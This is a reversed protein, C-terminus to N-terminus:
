QVVDRIANTLLFGQLPDVVIGQYHLATGALAPVNPIPWSLALPSTGVYQVALTTFTAPDLRLSAFIGVPVVGTGFAGFAGVVSTANPRAHFEVSYSAGRAPASPAHVQRLFNPLGPLDIDGDFDFDAAAVGANYGWPLTTPGAQAVFTGNGQNRWIATPTVLDVWADGDVDLSAIGQGPQTPFATSTVDVFTGNGLNRLLWTASYSSEFLDPDGDLDVDAFWQAYTSGSGVVPLPVTSPSLVGGQNVLLVGYGGPILVDLDWDRDIDVARPTVAYRNGYLPSMGSLHAASADTFIGAGNNEYFHCSGGDITLWDVDGDRDFDAVVQCNTWENNPPLATATVDTFYGAGNNVYVRNSLLDDNGILIDLDGDGDIDALDANHTANWGPQMVFRGATADTFKGNGDNLLLQNPANDNAVFLDLDADGDLDGVAFKDGVHISPLGAHRSAQFPPQAVLPVALFLACLSRHM